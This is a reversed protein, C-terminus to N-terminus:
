NGKNIEYLEDDGEKEIKYNIQIQIDFEATSTDANNLSGCNLCEISEIGEIDPLISKKNNIRIKSEFIEFFGINALNNIVDQSYNCRSRFSYVDRCIITGNIWRYVSSEMPMKDLSYNNVDPSLMYANIQYNTDKVISDIVLFLYERLKNIRTKKYDIM